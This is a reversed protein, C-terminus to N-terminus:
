ILRRVKLHTHFGQIYDHTRRAVEKEKTDKVKAEMWESMDTGTSASIAQIQKKELSRRHHRDETVALARTKWFQEHFTNAEKELRVPDKERLKEIDGLLEKTREDLLNEGLMVCEASKQQGKKARYILASAIFTFTAVALYRPGRAVYWWWLSLMNRYHVHVAKTTTTMITFRRPKKPAQLGSETGAPTKANPNPHPSPGHQSASEAEPSNPTQSSKPKTHCTRRLHCCVLLTFHPVYHHPKFLFIYDFLDLPQSLIKNSTYNSLIYPWVFIFLNHVDVEHSLFVVFCKEVRKLSAGIQVKPKGSHALWRIM